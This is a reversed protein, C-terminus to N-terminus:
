RSTVATIQPIGYMHSYGSATNFNQSNMVRNGKPVYANVIGQVYGGVRDNTRADIYTYSCKVEASMTLDKESPNIFEIEVSFQDGSPYYGVIRATPKAFQVDTILREEFDVLRLKAFKVTVNEEECMLSACVKITHNGEEMVLDLPKDHKVIGVSMNDVFVPLDTEWSGISVRVTGNLGPKVTVNAISSVNVNTSNTFSTFTNTPTVNPVTVTSNKIQGVCGAMLICGVIIVLPTLKLIKM